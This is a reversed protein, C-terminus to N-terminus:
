CRRRRILALAGLALLSLTAPEPVFSVSATGTYADGSPLMLSYTGTTSFPMAGLSEGYTDLAGQATLGPPVSPIAWSKGFSVAILEDVQLTGPGSAITLDDPTGRIGDVGYDLGIFGESYSGPAATVPMDLTHGVDTSALSFTLESLSIKTGNGMVQVAFRLVNGTDAAFEPGYVAVPDAFGNWSVFGTQINQSVLLDGPALLFSSPVYRQTDSYQIAGLGIQRVGNKAYQPLNPSAESPGLSPYVSVTPGAAAVITSAFLLFVSWGLILFRM